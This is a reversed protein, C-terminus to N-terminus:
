NEYAKGAAGKAKGIGSRTAILLLGPIKYSQGKRPLDIFGENGLGIAKAVHNFLIHFKLFRRYFSANM